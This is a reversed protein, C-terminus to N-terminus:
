KLLCLVGKIGHQKRIGNRRYWGSTFTSRKYKFHTSVTVSEVTTVGVLGIIDNSAGGDNLPSTKTTRGCLEFLIGVVCGFELDDNGTINSDMRSCYNIAGLKIMVNDAEVGSDVEPPASEVAM